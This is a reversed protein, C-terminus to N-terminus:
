EVYYREVGYLTWFQSLSICFCPLMHKSLIVILKLNQKIKHTCSKTALQNLSHLIGSFKQGTYVNEILKYNEIWSFDQPVSYGKILITKNYCRILCLVPCSAFSAKVDYGTEKFCYSLPKFIVFQQLRSVVEFLLFTRSLFTRRNLEGETNSLRKM